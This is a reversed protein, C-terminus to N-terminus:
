LYETQACDLAQGEALDSLLYTEVPGADILNQAKVETEVSYRQGRLAPSPSRPM